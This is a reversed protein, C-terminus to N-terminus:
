SALLGSLRQSGDWMGRSARRGAGQPGGARSGECPQVPAAEESWELSRVVLLFLEVTGAAAGTRAVPDDREVRSSEHGPTGLGLSIKWPHRETRQYRRPRRDHAGM